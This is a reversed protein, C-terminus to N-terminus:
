DRVLGVLDACADRDALPLGARGVRKGCTLQMYLIHVQTGVMIIRKWAHRAPKGNATEMTGAHCYLEGVPLSTRSPLAALFTYNGSIPNKKELKGIRAQGRCM